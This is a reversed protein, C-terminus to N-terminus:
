VHARGIEIDDGIHLTKPTGPDNPSQIPYAQYWRGDVSESNIKLILFSGEREGVTRFIEDGNITASSNSTSQRSDDALLSYSVTAALFIATLVLLKLALKKKDM